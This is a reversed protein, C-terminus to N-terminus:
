GLVIEKRDTVVPPDVFDDQFDKTDSLKELDDKQMGLKEAFHEVILYPQCFVSSWLGDAAKKLISGRVMSRHYDELFSKALNIKFNPSM